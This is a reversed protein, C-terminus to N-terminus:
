ARGPNFSPADSAPFTDDLTEDVKEETTLMRRGRRRKDSRDSLLVYTVAAALVGGAVAVATFLLASQSRTM